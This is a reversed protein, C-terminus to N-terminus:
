LMEEKFKKYKIINIGKYPNMCLLDEDGTIIFEAKGNVAIDLIFNDKKDRCDYTKEVVSIMAVTEKFLLLLRKTANSNLYKLLKKRKLVNSIEKLQETSSIISIKKESLFEEMGHLTKGIAFSIWINTDIVIKM